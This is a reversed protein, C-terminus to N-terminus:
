RVWSTVLDLEYELGCIAQRKEWRAAVGDRDEMAANGVLHGKVDM